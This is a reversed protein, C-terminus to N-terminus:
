RPLETISAYVSALFGALQILPNCGIKIGREAEALKDYMKLKVHIPVNLRGIASYLQEITLQPELKNQIYADELKKLAQEWNGTIALQLAEHALSVPILSQIIEVTLKKGGTIVAELYNLARRMDGNVYDLLITLAQKTQDNLEFEVGESILIKAIIRAMDDMSLRNFRLNVCRSKIPDIIKWEENATLIFTVHTREM